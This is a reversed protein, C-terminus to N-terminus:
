GVDVVVGRELAQKSSWEEHKDADVGWDREAKLAETIPTLASIDWQWGEGGEHCPAVGREVSVGRMGM